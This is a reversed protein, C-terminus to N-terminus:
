GVLDKKAQTVKAVLQEAIVTYLSDIGEDVTTTPLLDQTAGVDIRINQFNGTNLTYGLSVTVSNNSM